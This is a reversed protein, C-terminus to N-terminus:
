VKIVTGDDWGASTIDSGNASNGSTRANLDNEIGDYGYTDYVNYNSSENFLATTAKDLISTPSTVLESIMATTATAGNYIVKDVKFQATIRMRQPSDKYEFRYNDQSVPWCGQLTFHAAAIGPIGVNGPGYVFVEINKKYVSMPNYYEGEENYVLSRWAALYYQTLMNASVFFTISADHYNQIDEPVNCWMTRIRRTNAKFNTVGFVIEEVIPQYSTLGSTFMSMVAGIGSGTGASSYPNAIDIKPLIVEFTSDIAEDPLASIQVASQFRLAM